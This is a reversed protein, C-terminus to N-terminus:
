MSPMRSEPIPSGRRKASRQLTSSSSSSSSSSSGRVLDTEADTSSPPPCLCPKEDGSLDPIHGSMSRSQLDVMEPPSSGKTAVPTLPRSTDQVKPKDTMDILTKLLTRVSHNPVMEVHPLSQGTVPSKRSAEFWRGIATREYTYGDACVVPDTMVDHTIPCVFIGFAADGLPWVEQLREESVLPLQPPNPIEQIEDEDELDVENVNSLDGDSDSDHSDDTEGVGLFDTESLDSDALGFRPLEYASSHRSVSPSGASASASDVESLADPQNLGFDNASSSSDSAESQAPWDFDDDEDSAEQSYQAPLRCIQAGRPPVGHFRTGRSANVTYMM